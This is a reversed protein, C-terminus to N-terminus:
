GPNKVPAKFVPSMARFRASKGYCLARAGVCEDYGPACVRGFIWMSHCMADCRFRQNCAVVNDAQAPASFATAVLAAVFCGLALSKMDSKGVVMGPRYRRGRWPAVTICTIAFGTIGHTRRPAGM